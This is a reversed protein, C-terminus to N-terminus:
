ERAELKSQAQHTWQQEQSQEVEKNQEKYKIM